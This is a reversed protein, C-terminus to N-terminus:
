SAPMAERSRAPARTSSRSATTTSPTAPCATPRSSAQRPPWTTGISGANTLMNTGSLTGDFEIGNSGQVLGGAQVTVNATGTTMGIIRIGQGNFVGVGSQAKIASTGSVTVTASGTGAGAVDLAAGATAATISGTGGYSLTFSAGSGAVEVAPAVNGSVTGNNTLSVTSGNATSTLALGTGNIVAGSNITGAISDGFVQNRDATNPNPSTSNTTNTTTVTGSCSFNVPNSSSTACTARASSVPWAVATLALASVSSIFSV